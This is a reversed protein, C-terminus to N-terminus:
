TLDPSKPQDLLILGEEGDVLEEDEPEEVEAMQSSQYKEFELM